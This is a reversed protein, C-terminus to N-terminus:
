ASPGCGPAGASGLRQAQLLWVTAVVYWDGIEIRSVDHLGAGSPPVGQPATVGAGKSMGVRAQEGAISCAVSLPHLLLFLLRRLPAGPACPQLRGAM